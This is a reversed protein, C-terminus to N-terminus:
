GCPNEFWGERTNDRAEGEREPTAEQSRGRLSENEGQVDRALHRRFPQCCRPLQHAIGLTQKGSLEAKNRQEEASECRCSTTGMKCEPM